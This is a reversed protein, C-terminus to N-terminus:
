LMGRQEGGRTGEGCAPARGTAVRLAGAADGGLTATVATRRGHSCAMSCGSKLPFNM